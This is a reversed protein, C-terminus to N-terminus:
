RFNNQTNIIEKELNKQRTDQIQKAIKLENARKKNIANQQRQAEKIRNRREQELQRLIRNQQQQFEEKQQELLRDIKKLSDSKPYNNQLNISYNSQYKQPKIAIVASQSTTTINSLNIPLNQNSRNIQFNTYDCELKTFNNNPNVVLLQPIKTSIRTWSNDVPVIPLPNFNPQHNSWNSVYNPITQKIVTSMSTKIIGTNENNEVLNIDFDYVDKYLNNFETKALIPIHAESLNDYNIKHFQLGKLSAILNNFLKPQTLNLTTLNIKLPRELFDFIKQRPQNNLLDLSSLSAENFTLFGLYNDTASYYDNNLKFTVAQAQNCEQILLFLLILIRLGFKSSWYFLRM